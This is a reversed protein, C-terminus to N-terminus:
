EPTLVLLCGGILISTQRNIEHKEKKPLKLLFHIKSKLKSPILSKFYYSKEQMDFFIVFLRERQLHMLDEDRQPDLVLNYDNVIISENTLVSNEHSSDISSVFNFDVGFFTYGDSLGRSAREM